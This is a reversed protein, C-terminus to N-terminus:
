EVKKMVISKGDPTVDMSVKTGEKIDLEDCIEKPIILCLKGKYKIVKSTYIKRMYNQKLGEPM